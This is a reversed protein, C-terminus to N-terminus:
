EFGGALRGRLEEILLDLSAQLEVIEIQFSSLPEGPLLQQERCFEAAVIAEEFFIRARKLWAICLGCEGIGPPWSRGDLAGALKSGAKTVANILLLVAESEDQAPSRTCDIHAVLRLALERAQLALPHRFELERRLEDQELAPMDLDDDAEDAWCKEEPRAEDPPLEREAEARRCDLEEELISELDADPGAEDLRKMLRDTLRDSDAILEDAEAESLPEEGRWAEHEEPLEFGSSFEDESSTIEVERERRGPQELGGPAQGGLQQIFQVAARQNAARSIEEEHASMEWAAETDLTLEYTASEIVVHGNALSHWEFYVSNGWHWPFPKAGTDFKSFEGPSVDPVRVKRSATMEGVVGVQEEDLAANIGAKPQPNRFSIIRGALDRCANGKLKLEVPQARGLFWLRGTVTGRIRNDIEGRVLHAQIRRAM